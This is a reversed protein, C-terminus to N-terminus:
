GTDCFEIVGEGSPRKFHGTAAVYDLLEKLGEKHALLYSTSHAKRGLVM